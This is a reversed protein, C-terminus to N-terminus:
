EIKAAVTGLPDQLRRLSRLLADAPKGYIAGVSEVAYRLKKTRGRVAHYDEMSSEATLRGAAKRFQKYRSGLLLPAAATIPGHDHRARSISPKLVEAQLRALWKETQPSDLVRLMRTRARAREADLRRKMLQIAARDATALKREFADLNARQVDLDRVSGLAQLIRKLRARM